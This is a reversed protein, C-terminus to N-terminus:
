GDGGVCPVKLDTKPMNPPQFKTHLSEECIYPLATVMELVTVIWNCGKRGYM